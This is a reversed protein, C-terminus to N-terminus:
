RAAARRHLNAKLVTWEIDRDLPWVPRPLGQWAFRDLVPSTRGPTDVFLNECGEPFYDGWARLYSSGRGKLVISRFSGPGLGLMEIYAPDNMTTHRSNVTILTPGCRLLCSTGAWLKRGKAIGRRATCHGDVIAIVEAETEYSAPGDEWPDGTFKAQFRGGEGATKAQAVVAPDFFCAILADKAGAEHLARFMWLSRAPGGAGANDGLDVLFIPPQDPDDGVETTIRVAEDMPTLNWDFRARRDWAAQAVTETVESARAGDPDKDARATVIVHLGNKATDSYAFGALVSVNMIREDMMEQGLAIVEGYPGDETALSVNPPVLPLRLSALLTPTGDLIEILGDACETGTRFQDYHPDERYSVALDLAAVHRESINGHLDLTAVVPIAGVAERIRAVITGEIDADGTATMAGHNAIYVADLPAAQGLAALIEDMFGDVKAQDAPGAPKMGAFLIPVPEWETRADMRQVFGSVEKHVRPTDSRADALIEDGRFLSSAEEPTFHFPPSFANSEIFIGAIAVRPRHTM